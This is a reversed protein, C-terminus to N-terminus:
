KLDSAKLFREKDFKPNELEFYRILDKIFRDKSHNFRNSSKILKAFQIYHKQTM